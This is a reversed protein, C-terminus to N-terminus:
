AQEGPLTATRQLLPKLSWRGAGTLLLAAVMGLVFLHYEFGEGSGAGTWNMFFGNPAHVTAVAGLMVVGIGLAALRTYLGLMLALSGFFEIAIVLLTVPVPLQLHDSFFQLTASVGGGGCWGLAKQAGHPFMVAGRSIRLVTPALSFRASSVSTDEQASLSAKMSVVPNM